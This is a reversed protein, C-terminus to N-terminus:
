LALSPVVWLTGPLIQIGLVPAALFMPLSFLLLMPMWEGVTRSIVQGFVPLIKPNRCQKIAADVRKGSKKVM